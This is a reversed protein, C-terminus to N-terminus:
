IFQLSLAASNQPGLGWSFIIHAKPGKFYELTIKFIDLLPIIASPILSMLLKVRREVRLGPVLSTWPNICPFHENLKISEENTKHLCKM